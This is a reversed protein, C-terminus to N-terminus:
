DAKGYVWASPMARGETLDPNSCRTVCEGKYYLIASTGGDLNMAQVCGYKRMVEALEEVGCGPSDTLRGEAVAMVTELRNTQGLIARPQVGNWETDRIVMGDVIVAPMFECADRVNQHVPSDSDVIYMKDDTRLELRKYPAGSFRGHGNGGCVMFGFLEGGNGEGNADVFASGTMAVIGGNQECIAGVTQGEAGLNEAPYLGLRSTDKCVAITTRASGLAGEVTTCLLLVGNRADIALVNDGYITQIITGVTGDDKPVSENIDINGWGNELAEPYTELYARMSGEDIEHFTAFFANEDLEAATEEPQSEQSEFGTQEPEAEQPSICVRDEEHSLYYTDGHTGRSGDYYFGGSWPYIVDVNFLLDWKIVEGTSLDYAVVQYWGNEEENRFLDTLYATENNECPETWYVTESDQRIHLITEDSDEIRALETVRLESINLQYVSTTRDGHRLTFLWSDGFCSSESLYHMDEPWNEVNLERVAGTEIHLACLTTPPTAATTDNNTKLYYFVGDLLQFTSQWHGDGLALLQRVSGNKMDIGYFADRDFYYLCDGVMEVFTRDRDEEYHLNGVLTLDTGELRYVEGTNLDTCYNGTQTASFQVPGNAFIQTEGVKPDYCWVTSDVYTIGPEAQSICGWYDSEYYVDGILLSDSGPIHKGRCDAHLDTEESLMSPEELAAPDASGTGRNLVFLSGVGVALILCAAATLVRRFIGSHSWGQQASHLTKEDLDGIAKYLDERRM